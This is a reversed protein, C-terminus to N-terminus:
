RGNDTVRKGLSFAEGKRSVGIAVAKFHGAACQLGDTGCNHEHFWIAIDGWVMMGEDIYIPVASELVKM